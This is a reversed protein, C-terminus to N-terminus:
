FYPIVRSKSIDLDDIKKIVDTIAQKFGLFCFVTREFTVQESVNLLSMRLSLERKDGDGPISSTDSFHGGLLCLIILISSGM